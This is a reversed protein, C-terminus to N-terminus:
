LLVDELMGSLQAEVDKIERAITERDRIERPHFFYKTFGLEYGVTTKKEDIWADPTYPRIEKEMYGNIGGEYTFPILETETLNKDAILRGKKDRQPQGDDDFLPQLIWVKWYGFDNNNFVKSIESEEMEM